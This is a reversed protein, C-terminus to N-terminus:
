RQPPPPLPEVAVVAPQARNRMDIAFNAALAPLDIVTMAPDEQLKEVRALSVTARTYTSDSTLAARYAVAAATYHGTRELAMGLNNQFVPAEPRIETARALPGIAEKFRWTEILLLGMNNMAWVDLEDLSVAKRYAALAPEVQRLEGNVRGVLRWVESSTSDIALGKEVHTLAEVPRDLELLVRALNLESKLHKPDIELAATFAREAGGPEGSKWLSLGLMYHNWANDRAGDTLVAFMSAAEDYRRATYASEAMTYSVNEPVIFGTSEGVHTTEVETVVTPAVYESAPILAVLQQGEGDGGGCATMAAFSLTAFTALAGLRISYTSPRPITTSRVM